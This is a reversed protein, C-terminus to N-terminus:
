AAVRVLVDEGVMPANIGGSPLGDDARPFIPRGGVESALELRFRTLATAV